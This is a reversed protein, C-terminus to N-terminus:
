RGVRAPPVAEEGRETRSSSRVQADVAEAVALWRASDGLTVAPKALGRIVAGFHEIERRFCDDTPLNLVEVHGDVELRGAAPGTARFPSDLEITGHEGVLTLRQGLPGAFSWWCSALLGSDLRLQVATTWNCGNRMEGMAHVEGPSGLQWCLLDLCYCGIDWLAGGGLTPNERIDGPRNFPFSLRVHTTRLKGIRELLPRWQAPEYQPHLRYMFGEMVLRGASRAAQSLDEVDAVSLALPKECLVHKGAELSRRAWQHHLVNPLPLYVAEVSPEELVEDYSAVARGQGVAAVLAEARERQRSAAVVLRANAAARLAPLFRRRAVGAAGLVGWGVQDPQNV